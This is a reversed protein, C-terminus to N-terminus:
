TRPPAGSPARKKPVTPPKPQPRLAKVRALVEAPALTELAGFKPPTLSKPDADQELTKLRPNDRNIQEVEGQIQVAADLNSLRLGLAPDRKDAPTMYDIMSLSIFATIRDNKLGADAAGNVIAAPYEDVLAVRAGTAADVKHIRLRDANKGEHKVDFDLEVALLSKDPAEYWATVRRHQEPFVYSANFRMPLGQETRFQANLEYIVDTANVSLYGNKAAGTELALSGQGFMDSVVSMAHVSESPVGISPRTDGTRNKGWIADFGIPKVDGFSPLLEQLRDFVPSFNIVTNMSLYRARLEPEIEQAESLLATLPKESLVAKLDPANKFLTRFADIHQDDNFAMLAVQPAGDALAADIDSFKKVQAPLRQLKQADRDVASIDLRLGYRPFLVKDSVEILSAIHREGMVGAGLVLVPITKGGAKAKDTFTDHLM